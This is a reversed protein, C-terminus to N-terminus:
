RVNLIAVVALFLDGDNGGSATSSPGGNVPGVIGENRTAATGRTAKPPSTGQPPGDDNALSVILDPHTGCLLLALAKIQDPKYSGVVLKALAVLEPTKEEVVPADDNDAEGNMRTALKEILSPNIPCLRLMMTKVGSPEQANVFHEALKIM